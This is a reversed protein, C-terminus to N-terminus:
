LEQPKLRGYRGQGLMKKIYCGSWQCRSKAHISISEESAGNPCTNLSNRGELSEPSAPKVGQVIRVRVVVSGTSPVTGLCRGM